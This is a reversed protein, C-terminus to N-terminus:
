CVQFVILICNPIGIERPDGYMGAVVYAVSQGITILLALFHEAGKRCLASHCGRHSLALCIACFYSSCPWSTNRAM